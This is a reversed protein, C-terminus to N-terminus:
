FTSGLAATSHRQCRALISPWRTNYATLSHRHIKGLGRRQHDVELALEERRIRREHAAEREYEPVLVLSLVDGLGGDCTRELPSVPERAPVGSGPQVGDSETQGEVLQTATPTSLHRM